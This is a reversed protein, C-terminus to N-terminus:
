PWTDCLRLYCPADVFPELPLWWSPDNVSGQDFTVAINIKSDQFCVRVVRSRSTTPKPGTALAPIPVVKSSAGDVSTAHMSLELLAVRDGDKERM